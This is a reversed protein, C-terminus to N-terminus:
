HPPVTMVPFAYLPTAGHHLDEATRKECCPLEPRPSRAAVGPPRGLSWQANHTLLSAGEGQSCPQACTHSVRASGAPPTSTHWAAQPPQKQPALGSTPPTQTAGHCCALLGAIWVHPMGLRAGM